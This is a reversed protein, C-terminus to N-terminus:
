RRRGRGAPTFVEVLFEWVAAIRPVQRLARHGVLHLEQVAFPPLAARLKSSLKVEVLPASSLTARPVVVAGVGAIAAALQATASNTRLVLQEPSAVRTLWLASPIHSLEPGYTILPLSQLTSLTGWQAVRAASAALVDPEEAVRVSILDGTHPRKARLALDAERRTLDAYGTNSDLELRLGPHRSFLRNLAPVVFTDVVGPPASLRVLGEPKSEFGEIMRAIRFTAQEMQELYPGLQEAAATPLVGDPTRDFLRVGLTEELAELRRGITSGAVGLVEGARKYTPHALLAEVVRLDDWSLRRQLEANMRGM